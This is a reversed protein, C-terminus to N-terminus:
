LKILHVFRGLSLGWYYFLKVNCFLTYSFKLKCDINSAIVIQIWITSTKTYDFLLLVKIHINGGNFYYNKALIICEIFMEYSDQFIFTVIIM